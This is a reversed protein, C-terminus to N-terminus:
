YLQIVCDLLILLYYKWKKVNFLKLTQMVVNTVLDSPKLLNNKKVKKHLQTKGFYRSPAMFVLPTGKLPM